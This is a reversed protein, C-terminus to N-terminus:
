QIGYLYRSPCYFGGALLLGDINDQQINTLNATEGTIENDATAFALPLYAGNV